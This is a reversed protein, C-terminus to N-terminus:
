PAQRSTSEKIGHLATSDPGRYFPRCMNKGSLLNITLRRSHSICKFEWISATLFGALTEDRWGTQCLLQEDPGLRTNLRHSPSHPRCDSPAQWGTPTSSYKLVQASGKPKELKMLCISSKGQHSLFAARLFWGCVSALNPNPALQRWSM